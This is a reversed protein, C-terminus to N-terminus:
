GITPTVAIAPEELSGFCLQGQWERVGVLMHFGPIEGRFAHVVRGDAAVGLVGVERGPRPQVSAPLRRIG